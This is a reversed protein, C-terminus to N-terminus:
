RSNNCSLWSAPTFRSFGLGGTVLVSEDRIDLFGDPSLYAQGRLPPVLVLYTANSGSLNSSSSDVARLSPRCSPSPSLLLSCQSSAFSCVTADSTIIEGHRHHNTTTRIFLKLNGRRMRLLCRSNRAGVRCDEESSRAGSM